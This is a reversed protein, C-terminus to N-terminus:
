MSLMSPRGTARVLSVVEPRLIFRGFAKSSLILKLCVTFLRRIEFAGLAVEGEARNGGAAVGELAQGGSSWVLAM